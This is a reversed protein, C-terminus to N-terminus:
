TVYPVTFVTIGRSVIGEDLETCKSVSPIFQQHKSNIDLIVIYAGALYIVKDEKLFEVADLNYVDIGCICHPTLRVSSAM